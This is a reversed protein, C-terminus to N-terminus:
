LNLEQFITPSGIGKKADDRKNNTISLPAETQQDVITRQTGDVGDGDSVIRQPASEM